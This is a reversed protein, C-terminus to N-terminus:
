ILNMKFIYRNWKLIDEFSNFIDAIVSNFIYEFLKSIYEFLLMDM